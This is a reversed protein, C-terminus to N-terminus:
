RGTYGAHAHATVEREIREGLEDDARDLDYDM